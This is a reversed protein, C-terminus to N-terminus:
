ARVRAGNRWVYKPKNDAPVVPAEMDLYRGILEDLMKTARAKIEPDIHTGAIYALAIAREYEAENAQLRAIARLDAGALYLADSV